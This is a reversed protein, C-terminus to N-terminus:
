LPLMSYANNYKVQMSHLIPTESRVYPLLFRRLAARMPSLQSDYYADPAIGAPIEIDYEENLALTKESPSSVMTTRTLVHPTILHLPLFKNLYLEPTDPTTFWAVKLPLSHILHPHSPSLLSSLSLSFSIAVLRPLSPVSVSRRTPM